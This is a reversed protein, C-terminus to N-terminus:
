GGRRRAAATYLEVARRVAPHDPHCFWASCDVDEVVVVGGPRLAERMRGLCGAPDALHTLLFRAYVVDFEAAGLPGSVDARRLEGNRLGAARAETRGIGLKVDDLDVGVARGRAARRALEATVDGGGCGVDLCAAARPIGVRDLLALTTPRMVRALVRLRERGEVGGRIVYTNVSM